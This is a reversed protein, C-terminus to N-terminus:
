MLQNDPRPAVLIISSSLFYHGWRPGEMIGLIIVEEHLAPRHDAAALADHCNFISGELSAWIPNTPCTQAQIPVAARLRGLDM